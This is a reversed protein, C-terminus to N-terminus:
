EGVIAAGSVLFAVENDAVRVVGDNVSFCVTENQGFTCRAIGTRVACLMPMHGALVGVSGSEVPIHVYNVMRDLIVGSASVVSLHIKDAM